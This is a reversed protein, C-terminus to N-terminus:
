MGEPIKKYEMGDFHIKEAASCARRQAERIDVGTATVQLATGGPTFIDRKDFVTNEHFVFVDDMNRIVDLGHIRFGTTGEAHEKKSFLSVCVSAPGDEKIQIDSLRSESASLILEGIDAKIGPMILQTELDGFGFQLESLYISNKQVILDASIFGRFVIGENTLARHVPIIVGEMINKEIEKTMFSLPRFSSYVTAASDRNQDPIERYKSASALPMITKDDALTVLSIRNGKLHEEIIIQNGSDGYIKEKMVRKLTNDADEITSVFFVGKEGSYGNTKIVIPLGKMQVYDQALLHSSFVQYEATPIRHRKMFNKSSVRSTALALSGGNLGFLRCGHRDFTDVISQALSTESCIITLDIWEYKVFDVLASVNHPSVDICEAIGAIGANGPSCYIKAVHKSRSLKWILAHETGGGGIVLVKV